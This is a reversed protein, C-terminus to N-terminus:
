HTVSKESASASASFSNLVDHLIGTCSMICILPLYRGTADCFPAVVGGGSIPHSSVGFITGSTGLSLVATQPQVCGVGLASCMNDGSGISIAIPSEQNQKSMNMNVRRKWSDSLYGAIANPQTIVQPLMDWYRTDILDTLACNYQRTMPDFVGTGSADGADTMPLVKGKSESDTDTGGCLLFCIYDHPLLCYKMREFHDPEHDKLWKM